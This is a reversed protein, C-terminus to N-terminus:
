SICCKEKKNGPPGHSGNAAGKGNGAGGKDKELIARNTAELKTTTNAADAEVVNGILTQFALDVNTSDKASTEFYPVGFKKAFSKGYASDACRSPDVARLDVKNAILAVQVTDSAHSTINKVWYSVNEYSRRDAVDYVLMIAHAGRYYSTTIKHFQEQGATDWVQATIIENNVQLKRTKFNVGVTGVLDTSFMDSTWRIMLSSKGVGSDGLMLVKVRKLEGENSTLASTRTKREEEVEHQEEQEERIEDENRHHFAEEIGKKLAEAEKMQIPGTKEVIKVSNDGAEGNNQIANPDILIVGGPSASGDRQHVSRSRSRMRALREIEDEEDEDDDDDDDGGGVPYSNDDDELSLKMHEIPPPQSPDYMPPDVSSNEDDEDGDDGFGEHFSTKRRRHSSM